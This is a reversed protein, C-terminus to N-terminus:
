LHNVACNMNIQKQVICRFGEYTDVSGSQLAQKLDSFQMPTRLRKKSAEIQADAQDMIM